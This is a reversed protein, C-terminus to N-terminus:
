RRAHGAAWAVGRRIADRAADTDDTTEFGHQAGPVDIVEVPVGAASAAAVFAQQTPV